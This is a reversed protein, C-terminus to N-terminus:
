EVRDGDANIALTLAFGHAPVQAVKLVVEILNAAGLHFTMSLYHTLQAYIRDKVDNGM